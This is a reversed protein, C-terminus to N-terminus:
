ACSQDGANISALDTSKLTITSTTKPASSKGSGGPTGATTRSGDASPRTTSGAASSSTPGAAPTTQLRSPVRQGVSVTSVDGGFSRGILLRVQKGLDAQEDLESGPIAAAVVVAADRNGASYQVTTGDQTQDAPKTMNEKAIDFGGANLENRVKGAVGAEGTLNILQVDIDAPDVALTQPAASTTRPAASSTATSSPAAASKTKPTTAPATRSGSGAGRSAAGTKTPSQQEGPLLEDNLLAAFVADAKPDMVQDDPNSTSTHAPLTYFTVKDPELNGLQHALNILTDVDVRDTYTADVFAHLFKDLKSPSLLTGASTIQRLMTSLVVQQRRIRGYDNGVGDNPVKRARVLSLAQDGQITQEGGQAVILGLENDRIPKCINMRIGGLADVMSKFGKFDIEVVRDIRLGTLKQVAAVSCAPGGVSYANTIKWKTTGSVPEVENSLKRSKPYEWRKCTPAAVQLDRPVSLVTIHQRDAALHAIMLTDSQATDEHGDSNTNDGNGDARTDSGILLINEPPYLKVGPAAPAGAAAPAGPAGSAASSSRTKTPTSINPDTTQVYSEQKEALGQDTTKMLNWDQGAYVLVLASVAAIAVRGAWLAGRPNIGGRGSRGAARSIPPSPPSPPPAPSATPSGARDRDADAPDADPDAGLGRAPDAVDPALGAAGIAAPAHHRLLSERISSVDEGSRLQPLQDTAGDDYGPMSVVGPGAATPRAPRGPLTIIQTAEDDTGPAAAAMPVSRAVPGPPQAPPRSSAPAPPLSPPRVLPPQLPPISELPPLPTPTVSSLPTLLPAAEAPASSLDIDAPPPTPESQPASEDHGAKQLNAILDSAALAGAPASALRRRRRSGTEENSLRALLEDVRTADLRRRNWRDPREWPASGEPGNAADDRPPLESM